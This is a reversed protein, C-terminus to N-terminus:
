GAKVRTWAEDWVQLAAGELPRSWEGHALMEETMQLWPYDRVLHNFAATGAVTGTPYGIWTANKASIEPELLYDLFLLATGPHQANRPIAMTDAWTPVGEKCTEYRFLHPHKAQTLAVYVDGSWAHEMWAQGSDLNQIDNTSFGALMPKLQVLADGAKSVQEPVASNINYGLRILSMGIADAIEDLVYIKGRAQDHDWLDNWSGTMGSVRDTRWAIGTTGAAYPLSYRAGPDYFPDKFFPLVQDYNRLEGHPIPMLLNARALRPIYNGGSPVVFDFPVGAAMKALMAEDNDFFTQHVHVGYEKAFGKVVDPNMYQAWNFISLDGDIKAKLRPGGSTASASKGCAAAAGGLGALLTLRGAGGIFARRGLRRTTWSPDM